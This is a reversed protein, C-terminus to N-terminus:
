QPSQTSLFEALALQAANISHVIVYCVQDRKISVSVVVGAPCGM